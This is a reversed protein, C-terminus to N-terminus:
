NVTAKVNKKECKPCQYCEIDIKKIKITFGRSRNENIQYKNLSETVKKPKSNRLECKPCKWKYGPATIKKVYNENLKLCSDHYWEECFDCGIMEFEVKKNDITITPM